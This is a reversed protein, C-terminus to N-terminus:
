QSIKIYAKLIKNEITDNVAKQISDLPYDTSLNKVKVEKNKLLDLSDKLDAPSPSYSGLVTLERYYIENNAYGTNKPTSSFVVIKGGDRVYKLATSIANDSGSTMFVADAKISECMENVNFAEIGFSKLLEVRSTILDCGIANMGFAKLAQAMLIGISGLGIVLATSNQKLM